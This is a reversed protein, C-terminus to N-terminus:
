ITPELQMISPTPHINADNGSLTRKAPTIRNRILMTLVGLGPMPISGVRESPMASETIAMQSPSIRINSPNSSEDTMQILRKEVTAAIRITLCTTDENPSLLARFSADLWDVSEM